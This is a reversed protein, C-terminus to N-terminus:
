LRQATDSCYRAVYAPYYEDRNYKVFITPSTAKDCTTDYTRGSAPNVPPLTMDSHGLTTRGVLVLVVLMVRGGAGDDKAYMNAVSALSSFYTGHGYRHGVNTGCLKWDLNQDCIDNVVDLRTGHFLYQEDTAEEDGGYLSTLLCKKTQYARWLHDNQVRHVSFVKVRPLSQRLLGKVFVFESSLPPVPLKLFQRSAPLPLFLEDFKVSERHVSNTAPRRRVSRKKGTALNTQTMAEGDLRYNHRGVSFLVVRQDQVRLHSELCDGLAVCCKGGIVGEGYAEWCGQDNQWYWLWRTAVPVQSTLDSTTSLRRLALCRSGGRLQMAELDATWSAARALLGALTRLGRTNPLSAQLPPLEVCDEAPHSYMVELYDGQSFSLPLWEDNHQVEWLYSKTHHVRGCEDRSKSCKNFVSFLCIQPGRQSFVPGTEKKLINSVQVHRAGEEGLCAQLLRQNHPALLSHDHKCPSRTCTKSAWHYCM